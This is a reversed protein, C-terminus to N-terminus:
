RTRMEWFRMLRITERLESPPLVPPQYPHARYFRVWSKRWASYVESNELLESPPMTPLDDCPLGCFSVWARKWASYVDSNERLERPPPVPPQGTSARYVRLWANLWASYVEPNALSEADPAGTEADVGGPLYYLELDQVSEEKPSVYCKTSGAKFYALWQMKRKQLVVPDKQLRPDLAIFDTWGHPMVAWLRGLAASRLKPYTAPHERVDQPMRKLVRKSDRWSRNADLRRGWLAVRTSQLEPDNRLLIPLREFTDNTKNIEADIWKAWEVRLPPLWQLRWEAPQREWHIMDMSDRGCRAGGLLLDRTNLRWTDAVDQIKMLPEPLPHLATTLSWFGFSIFADLQGWNETQIARSVAQERLEWGLGDFRNIVQLLSEPDFGNRKAVRKLIKKDIFKYM